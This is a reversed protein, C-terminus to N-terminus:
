ALWDVDCDLALALAAAVGRAHDAYDCTAVITQAWGYDLTLLWRNPVVSVGLDTVVIREATEGNCLQYHPETEDPTHRTKTEAM